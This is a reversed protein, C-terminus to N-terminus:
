KDGIKQDNWRYSVKRQLSAKIEDANMRIIEDANVEDPVQTTHMMMFKKSGESEKDAIGEPKTAGATQKARIEEDTAEMAMMRKDGEIYAHLSQMQDHVHALKNQFWEEPDMTVNMYEMIEDAAYKIYHLQRKMMPIEEWANETLDTSEDVKYPAGKKMKTFDELDKESMKMMEASATGPEPKTGERKHKLAIRAAIAQAESEAKEKLDSPIKDAGFMQEIADKIQSADISGPKAKRLMAILKKLHEPSGQMVIRKEELKNSIRRKQEDEYRKIDARIKDKSDPNQTRNRQRKLKNIMADLDRDDMKSINEDLEAEKIGLSKKIKKEEADRAAKIKARLAEKRRDALPGSVTNRDRTLKEISAEDLEAEEKKMAKSVAKRRNHLYQDSADVDGDNDIDKDKRDEFDGKLADKDVKDMKKEDVRRVENLATAMNKLEELKIM